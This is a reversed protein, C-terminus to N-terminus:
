ASFFRRPNDTLISDITEQPVGRARLMPIFTTFIYTQPPPWAGTARAADIAKTREESPEFFFKGRWGCYGDQSLMVRAAHGAEILKAVNDARVEDSQRRVIGVRDFGVYSGRQAIGLHYAHNPNGCSHGILCRNLPVGQSEFLDQQDPGCQGNETHTLIPVGTRKHAISAATLCRRELETINPASTACKLIGARIHTGDIGQEIERVYLDSIEELSAHRWYAPIGMGEYYFGTSCVIHMGSRESIEALLRVDRGMEIPCPDVFTSVGHAVLDQLRSVALDIFAKRDFPYRPDFEAGPFSVLVHEHMLTKGLRDVPVPGLVTQINM